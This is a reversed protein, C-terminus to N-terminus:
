ETLLRKMWKRRRLRITFLMSRVAWESYIGLWVGMVGFGLVVGLLYGMGIRFLAMNLLAVTMTYNVDKVARLAAPIIFALPWFLPGGILLSLYIQNFYVVTENDLSFINVMLGAMPLMIVSMLVMFVVAVGTAFITTKPIDELDGRGVRQGIMVMISITLANGPIMVFGMINMGVVNAAMVSTGMGVIFMLATMRGAQFLVQEISTPIGLTCIDKIIDKTPKFWSFKNLRVPSKKSLIVWIAYIMGAARALAIALGAGHMGFSPLEIGAFPVTIGVILAYSLTINVVNMFLSIKMPNKVDGAGRMVGFLTQAVALFPLSWIIYILYIHGAEVMVPDSGAFLWTNVPARLFTLLVSLLLSFVVAMATAQGGSSAAKKENRAGVAQAVLITGGTTMAAFLSIPIMSANNVHGAASLAEEGLTSVMATNVMGMLTIFAHEVLLPLTLIGLERLRERINDM